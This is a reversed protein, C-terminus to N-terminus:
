LRSRFGFIILVFLNLGGNTLALPCHDSVDRALVWLTCDGWVNMWEESILVRDIRSMSIGNPHYWTFRRGVVNLDEVDMDWVFRNFWNMDVVQSSSSEDHVGRREDRNSVVNFDGLVCGAGNGRRRREELIAEWLRRKSLSDCKAYVNIVFCKHIHVGSEFCVGVYGEGGFCFVENACSKRWLSLIRGSNGESPRFSWQCDDSGWLNYFLASSIDELKAEQIALFDVKNQRVLERIRRKKM